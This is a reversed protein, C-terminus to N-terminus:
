SIPCGLGFYLDRVPSKLVSLTHNLTETNLVM